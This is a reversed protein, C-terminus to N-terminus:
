AETQREVFFYAAVMASALVVAVLAAATAALVQGRLGFKWRKM